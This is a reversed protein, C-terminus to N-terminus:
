SVSNEISETSKAYVYNPTKLELSWHPRYSNYVKIAKQIEKRAVQYSKFRYRLHFEYKLIGNLREAVANEYPDSNETMSPFIKNKKNEKVFGPNCYQFGRDSHLITEGDNRKNKMAMKIAKGTTQSVGMGPSFSYGMIRRSYLDTILTLYNWDQGVRIYTIDSVWVQDPRRIEMDKILNRYKRFPHNSDTKPQKYKKRSVMLGNDRLFNLFKDRGMKIGLSKIEAKLLYYLKKGGSEKLIAKEKIILDLILDRNAKKLLEKDRLKYYYFRSVGLLKCVTSVVGKQPSKRLRKEVARTLV